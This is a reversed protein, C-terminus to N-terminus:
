GLYLWRRRGEMLKQLNRKAKHTKRLVELRRHFEGNRGLAQQVRAAQELLKVADDYRHGPANAIGAEALRLYVPVSEEPSAAERAEALRLWLVDSCGGAQAERWADDVKQEHLFIEVLLSRDRKRHGWSHVLVTGPKPAPKAAPDRRISRLARERWEDWDDDNRAFEELLKYNDLSAHDLFELWVARIADQHRNRRQYEEALFLRLRRDPRDPFTAVGKEAWDLAKDADGAGRYAEAIELYRYPGGLDRELVSVLQEVDGSQRVLSIMIATISFDDRQAGLREGPVRVPVKAWEAEALKRFAQLGEAGLIGAYKEASGAFEGYQALLEARFLRGALEVPDPKAAACARLHIEQLREMLETGQGDSDDIHEVARALRRLSEECLEIAPSAHGSEILKEVLDIASHVGGAYGGAERYSVYGRIRIAEELSLRVQRVAVEPGMALAAYQMLKARLGPEHQAWALVLDVLVAHDESRLVEAIEKVTIRPTAATSMKGQPGHGPTGDQLHLWALATAVCHKCFEEDEGLPCDCHFDLPGAKATIEVAYDETGSVVARITNEWVEIPGVHGRRFYDLGRQYYRDGALARITRETIAKTLFSSESMFHEPSSDPGTGWDLKDCAAAHRKM